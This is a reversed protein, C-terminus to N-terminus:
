SGGCATVVTITGGTAPVVTGSSLLVSVVGKTTDLTGCWTGTPSTLVVTPAPSSSVLGTALIGISGALALTGAVAALAMARNLLNRCSRAGEITRRAVEPGSLPHKEVVRPYGQAARNAYFVAGLAVAGAASLSALIFYKWGSAPLEALTTPGVVFGVTAYAGLFAAIAAQWKGASSQVIDLANHHADAAKGAWYLAEDLESPM